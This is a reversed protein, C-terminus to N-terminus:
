ARSEMGAAAKTVQVAVMQGNADNVLKHWVGAPVLISSGETVDITKEAGDDLFFRGKGRLIFFVQEGNPHRHYKLVQGPEFYYTDSTIDSGKLHAVKNVNAPNFEPKEFVNVAVGTVTETQMAM